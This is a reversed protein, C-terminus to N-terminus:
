TASQILSFVTLKKHCSELLNNKLILGYILNLASVWVSPILQNLSLRVKEPTM